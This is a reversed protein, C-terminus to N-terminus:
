ESLHCFETGHLPPFVLNQNGTQNDALPWPGPVLPWMGECTAEGEEWGCHCKSEKENESNRQSGKKGEEEVVEKGM